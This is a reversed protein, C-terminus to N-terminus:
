PVAKVAYVVLDGFVARDYEGVPRLLLAPDESGALFAYGVEDPGGAEAARQQYPFRQAVDAGALIRLGSRYAIRYVAWYGGRVYRAHHQDLFRVADAVPAEPDAVAVRLNDRTWPINTTAIWGITLAGLLFAAAGSRRRMATSVTVLAWLGAALGIAAPVVFPEFYRGDDFFALHKFLGLLPLGLFGTVVPAFSRQQRVLVVCGLGIVLYVALTLVHGLSPGAWWTGQASRLGLGRPFLEILFNKLRTPYPANVANFGEHLSPWGSSANYILFPGLGCVLGLGSRVLWRVFGRRHLWAAATFAALAIPLFMPHMWVAIGAAFGAAYDWRHMFRGTRLATTEPRTSDSLAASAALSYLCCAWALLGAPYGPYALTSLLVMSGSFVFVMSAASVAVVVPQNSLRVISYTVLATAAWLVMTVVKVAFATPGLLHVLPWALFAELTGGYNAGPLLVSVHRPLRLAMIGTISEDANLVGFPSHLIRWRYVGGILAVCAGVVAM